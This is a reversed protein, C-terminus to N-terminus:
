AAAFQTNLRMSPHQFALVIDSQPVGAYLLDNTIGEETWDEEIRIKDNKVSVYLIIKQIRKKGQWGTDILLYRGQEDDALFVTELDPGKNGYVYYRSCCFALRVIESYRRQKDM